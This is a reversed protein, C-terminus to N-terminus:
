TPDKTPAPPRETSSRKVDHALAASVQARLAGLVVLEDGRAPAGQEIEQARSWLAESEALEAGARAALFSPVDTGGRPLTRRVRLEAFRTFVALAHAPSALRAYFAGTARIHEAFARRAPPPAPRPRAHRVGYAAFLVLCAVLAHVMGTGLGSRALASLPNDPPSIGDGARAIQVARERPLRPGDGGPFAPTAMVAAFLAAVVAPNGPHSLGINTFLEGDHLVVVVGKGESKAAAYVRPEGPPATVILPSWGEVVLSGGGHVVGRFRRTAAVRAARERAALADDDEDDEDNSAVQPSALPALLADLPMVRSPDVAEPVARYGLSTALSTSTTGALVLVGGSEVWALLRVEADPELRTRALDVVLVPAVDAERPSLPALSALSRGVPTVALGQRTLLETFLEDGAPDAHSTRGAPNCGATLSLALALLAASTVRVLARALGSVRLVRESTSREGGFQVRDVERVLERLAPRREVESCARVYEGNTRSRTVRVAGRRDLAALSAALYMFLARNLEGSRALDDARRLADEADDVLPLERAVEVLGAAPSPVPAKDALSADRRRRRLAQVIPYVIAALAAAALVFVLAQALWGLLKKLTALLASDGDAERRAQAADCAAVFGACDPVERAAACLALARQNLPRRPARCFRMAEGARAADANAQAASPDALTAFAPTAVALVAFVGLM